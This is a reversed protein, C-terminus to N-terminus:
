YCEEHEAEIGLVSFVTLLEARTDEQDFSVRKILVGDDDSIVIAFGDYYDEIRVRV